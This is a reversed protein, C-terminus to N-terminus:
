MVAVMDGVAIRVSDQAIANMGFLAGEKNFKGLKRLAMPVANGEESAGTEPQQTIVICRSCPKVLRLRVDGARVLPWDNESWADMDGALVINPRFRMMEVPNELVANLAALSAESTVLIPYGDAFSVIDQPQAFDPDVRRRTDDPMYALRLTRGAIDSLLRSAENEAIVADVIDRWIQVPAVADSAMESELLATGAAGTLRYGGEGEHHMRVAALAPIERRTVFRNADDVILWRRDGKLGRQEVAVSSMAIPGLSKVPYIYLASIKM